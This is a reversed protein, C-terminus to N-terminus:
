LFLSEGKLEWLTKSASTNIKGRVKNTNMIGGWILEKRQIETKSMYDRLCIIWRKQRRHGRM